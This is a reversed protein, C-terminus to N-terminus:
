DFRHELDPSYKMLLPTSDCQTFDNMCPAADLAALEAAAEGATDRGAGAGAAGVGFTGPADVGALDGGACQKHKTANQKIPEGGM